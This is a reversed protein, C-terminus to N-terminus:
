YIHKQGFLQKTEQVENLTGFGGKKASIILGSGNIMVIDDVDNM